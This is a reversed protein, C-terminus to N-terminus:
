DLYNRCKAIDVEDIDSLPIFRSRNFYQKEGDFALPYEVVICLHEEPGDKLTVSQMFAPYHMALDFPTNDICIAKMENTNLTLLFITQIM